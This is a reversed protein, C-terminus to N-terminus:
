AQQSHDKEKALSEARKGIKKLVLALQQLEESSVNQFARKILATHRRFLPAFKDRGKETLSVTRVRRDQSCEVRSVFGKKHLRDVAVSVSGPNLYVKPGIANVPMPGKHLLVELVRFDSEGLGEALFTPLLYRSMSQWAKLMILWAHLAEPPKKREEMSIHIRHNYEADSIDIDICMLDIFYIPLSSHGVCCSWYLGCGGGPVDVRRVGHRLEFDLVHHDRIYFALKRFNRSSQEQIFRIKRVRPNLGRDLHGRNMGAIFLAISVQLAGIEKIHLPKRGQVEFGLADANDSISLQRDFAIQGDMAFGLFDAKRNFPWRRGRLIGPAVCSNGDGRGGLDVSLIEAQSPVSGELGAANQDTVIHGDSEIDLEHLSSQRSGFARNGVREPPAIGSQHNRARCM